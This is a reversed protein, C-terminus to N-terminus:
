PEIQFASSSAMLRNGNPWLDNLGFNQYAIFTPFEYFVRIINITGRSGPTFQLQSTDISGSATIPIGLDRFLAVERVDVHMDSKNFVRMYNDAFLRDLFNEKTFTAANIQNTRMLRAINEVNHDLVSNFFLHTTFEIFFVILLTLPISIIAFEVAVSAKENKTFSFIFFKM